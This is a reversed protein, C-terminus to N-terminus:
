RRGRWYGPRRSHHAVAIVRVRDPEIRYVLSYPFKNLRLLRTGQKGTVGLAPFEALRLWARDLEDAFEDAAAFALADLYWDTAEQLDAQAERSLSVKM